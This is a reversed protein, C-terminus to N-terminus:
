ALPRRPLTTMWELLDGTYDSWARFQRHQASRSLENRTTPNEILRRIAGALSSSTVENLTLCGGGAASEGLAGRSSCVCPKGHQLSEIVPLGFGEMLSPYVTFTCAGYAANLEADTVVGSYKLPRGNRQLTAIKALASAATDVRALGILQLEFCLGSQWLYECAELLALHNKRGEITGVCLVRLMGSTQTSHSANNTPHPRDIALPIARVTPQNKVGLWDWYDRLTKASDESVAAIGDFMLLERLYGPLRTVTGPPTHEPYKLGIADHFLAIRPGKTTSILNALARGVKASFLEPVLLGDGALVPPSIRSFRRIRGRIRKSMPWSASRRTAPQLTPSLHALEDQDLQRWTEEYPDYCVPTVATARSCQEVCSRVVRQIGTQAWTHSTHSVDILLM